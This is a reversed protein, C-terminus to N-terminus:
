QMLIAFDSSQAFSHESGSKERGIGNRLGHLNQPAKVPGRLLDHVSLTRTTAVLARRSARLEWANRSHTREAVPQRTSIM